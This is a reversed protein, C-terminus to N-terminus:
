VWCRAADLDLPHLIVMLFNKFGGKYVKTGLEDVEAKGRWGERFLIELGGRVFSSIQYFIWVVLIVELAIQMRDSFKNGLYPEMDITKITVKTGGVHNYPVFTGTQM